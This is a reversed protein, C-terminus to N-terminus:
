RLLPSFIRLFYVAKSQNANKSEWSIISNVLFIWFLFYVAKSQNAKKSKWSIISNELLICFESIYVAIISELIPLKDWKIQNPVLSYGGQDSRPRHMFSKSISRLSQSSSQYSTGNLKIQFFHIDEQDSRPGHMFSKSSLLVLIPARSWKLLQSLSYSCRSYTM